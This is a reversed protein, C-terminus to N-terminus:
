FPILKIFKIHHNNINNQRTNTAINHLPQKVRKKDYETYMDFQYLDLTLLAGDPFIPDPFIPNSSLM